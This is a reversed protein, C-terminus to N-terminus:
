LTPVVKADGLLGIWQLAQRRTEQARSADRALSTLQPIVDGADALVAPLLVRSKDRSGIRESQPVLVFFYSAAEVPSVTGLDTVREATPAWSGSVYTRVRTVQRGAVTLAVRVPGPVCGPANWEGISQFSEAFFAKRYGIAERGDGCTGPRSAFQLHVVGDPARSVRTALDSQALAARPMATVSIVVAISFIRELSSPRM